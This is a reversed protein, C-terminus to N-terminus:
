DIPHAPCASAMYYAQTPARNVKGGTDANYFYITYEGAAVSSSTQAQIYSVQM